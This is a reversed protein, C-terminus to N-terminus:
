FFVGFFLFVRPFFLINGEFIQLIKQGNQANLFFRFFKRAMRLMKSLQGQVQGKSRSWSRELDHFWFIQVLVVTGEFGELLSTVGNILLKWGKKAHSHTIPGLDFHACKRMALLKRIFQTAMRLMKSLQSSSSRKVKVKWLWSVLFHTGIGTNM